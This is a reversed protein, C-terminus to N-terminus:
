SMQRSIYLYGAYVSLLSFLFSLITGNVLGFYPYAFRVASAYVVVNITGLLMVKMFARSFSKGQAFHTIIMASLIQAPFAAFTGGLLPGGFRAMLVAFAIISGALLGRFLMQSPNYSIHKRSESKVGLRKEIIYYAGVVSVAFVAWAYIFNDFKLSVLGLALTFWIVLLMAMLAYFNLRTLWTYLLIILASLAMVIPLISTSESAILPTQTWGIFFLAIVVTSPMGAIVGGVKTGIREAMLTAFTTWTGGIVLSLALKIWFPDDM